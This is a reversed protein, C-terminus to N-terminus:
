SAKVEPTLQQTLWRFTDLARVAAERSTEAYEKIEVAVEGKANRAITASCLSERTISTSSGDSKLTTTTEKM